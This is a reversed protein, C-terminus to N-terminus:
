YFNWVLKKILLEYERKTLLGEELFQKFSPLGAFNGSSRISGNIEENDNEPPYEEQKNLYKELGNSCASCTMGDISLIIKKM